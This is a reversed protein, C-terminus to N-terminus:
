KEYLYDYLYKIVKKDYLMGFHGTNFGINKVFNLKRKNEPYIFADRKAYLAIKTKPIKKNKFDQDWLILDRKPTKDLWYWWFAVGFIKHWVGSIPIFEKVFKPNEEILYKGLIRAGLSDGILIIKANTKKHISEIQNKIDKLCERQSKFYNYKLPIIIKNKKNFYKMYKPFSQWYYEFIGHTALIIKDNKTYKKNIYEKIKKDVWKKHTFFYYINEIMYYWSEFVTILYNKNSM